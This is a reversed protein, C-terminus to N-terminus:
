KRGTILDSYPLSEIWKRFEKWENLQNNKRSHYMKRLVAYNMQVTSKQNHGNRVTGIKYTDFIEWWYLPASIDCTVVIMQMFKLDDAALKKMLALDNKGLLAKDEMYRVPCDECDYNPNDCINCPVNFESDSMDQGNYSNHMGRIAAQWGSVETEEILISM